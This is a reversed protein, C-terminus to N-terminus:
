YWTIIKGPLASFMKWQSQMYLVGNLLKEMSGSSSSFLHYVRPALAPLVVLVMDLMM